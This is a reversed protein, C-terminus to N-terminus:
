PPITDTRTDSSTERIRWDGVSLSRNEEFAVLRGSAVLWCITVNNLTPHAVPGVDDDVDSYADRWTVLQHEM